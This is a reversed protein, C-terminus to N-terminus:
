EGWIKNIRDKTKKSYIEIIKKNGDVIKREEELKEVIQKQIEISPLSINISFLQKPYIAAVSTTASVMKRLKDKYLNINMLYSIFNPNVSEKFRMRMLNNNFVFNTNDLNFITTKGVLDPTNRTNFLVDGKKLNYRLFEENTCNINTIKNLDLNGNYSMDGMKVYPYKFEINQEGKNKVIGTQNFEILKSLEIREWSEDIEFHPKYNDVVQKAGDIVKQYQELEEVIEKQIEIPPLPIKFNDFNKSYVHPQGGGTQLSYIYDQKGKLMYFLFRNSLININNSKISFSDSMFIPVDFYNIFGAYAGSSSVTITEGDRNFENHYYAPKQGGAIVPYKGSITNKKTISTGRKFDVYDSLNVIQFDSILEIEGYRDYILSLDNSDLIEQKSLYKLNPDNDNLRVRYKNIAKSIGPLDNKKIERRQAGLDFGDNEVKAFFIKDTKKNFAKDLILISTKVGSYPNFVGGPLSVVGILSSDILQKRLEKYAKGSQFIIGEPVVIGARGNNSLHTNIYSTFLVEAKTANVAFRKHPRIGGSPTMFPPNALVVDYIDDWREESTLSDYEYIHPENLGHLYMNALALKVMMPDIDLGVLNNGVRKKDEPTLLDGLSEKTNTKLIHKYASIIFGATGCAPDCIRDGKQPNVVETIFDIIHRPTRFQGADGQTGLISLLYEFGDGLKESNSYHFDNIEKLFLRLTYPDNYPLFARKFIDRFISPINPNNEMEEIAESYLKICESGGLDPAFLNEWSYKEFEGIFFTANGGLDKIEKDRDWMFKYFLAITIQEVQSKPDPVKGVLLNRLSDIKQKTTTDLM